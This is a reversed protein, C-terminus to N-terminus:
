KSLVLIIITVMYKSIKLTKIDTVKVDMMFYGNMGVGHGM